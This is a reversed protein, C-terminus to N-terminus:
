LSRKSAKVVARYANVHIESPMIRWGNKFKEIKVISESELEDWYQKARRLAERQNLLNQLNCAKILDKPSLIPYQNRRPNNERPLQTVADTHFLNSIRKGKKDRLENENPDNPDVLYGESNRSEIPRTPDTITGDLTGYKDFIYCASLYAAFKPASTQGTKRLISKEVLMGQKTDPPLRVDLHIRDENRSNQHILNRVAVPRWNGINGSETKYPVTAGTHLITLADIIYRLQNTRHFKGNPYLYDILDGLTFSIMDNTHKPELAMLAEFFVRLTHSVAGRKTRPALGFPLAIDLSMVDPLVTQHTQPIEFLQLQEIQKISKPTAFERLRAVTDADAFNTEKISGLPSKIIAAPHTRDYEKSIHRTTIEQLYAEVIPEIPHNFAGNHKNNVTKWLNNIAVIGDELSSIGERQKFYQYNDEDDWGSLIAIIAIEVILRPQIEDYDMLDPLSSNDDVFATNEPLHYIHHEVYANWKEKYKVPVPVDITHQLRCRRIRYWVKEIWNEPESDKPIQSMLTKPDIGAGKHIMLQTFIDNTPEPMWERLKHPTVDPRNNDEYGMQKWMIKTANTLIQTASKTDM